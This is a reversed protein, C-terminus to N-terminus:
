AGCTERPPFYTSCAQSSIAPMQIQPESKIWHPGYIIALAIMFALLSLAAVLVIGRGPVRGTDCSGVERM